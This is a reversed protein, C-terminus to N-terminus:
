RALIGVKKLYDSKNLSIGTFSFVLKVYKFVWMKVTTQYVTMWDCLQEGVKMKQRLQHCVLRSNIVQQPDSLVKFSDVKLITCEYVAVESWLLLGSIRYWLLILRSSHSVRLCILPLMGQDCEIFKDVMSEKVIRKVHLLEEEVMQIMSEYFPEIRPKIISRELLDGFMSLVQYLM